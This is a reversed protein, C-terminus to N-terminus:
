RPRRYMYYLTRKESSPAKMGESFRLARGDRVNDLNEYAQVIEGLVEVLGGVVQKLPAGLM